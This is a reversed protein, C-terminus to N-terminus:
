WPRGKDQWPKPLDLDDAMIKYCNYGQSMGAFGAPHWATGTCYFNAIGPFKHRALEPIPRFQGLQSPVHDVVKHDGYPAMNILRKATTFPTEPAYGIVNEWTMNPAYEQWWKLENDAHVRSYEIWERESMATAPLIFTETLIVEKGPPALTPDIHSNPSALLSFEDAIPPLQGMRRGYTYKLLSDPDRNTMWLWGSRWTDANFAEATYRPREHLAYSYWSITTAGATCNKVKRRIVPSVNEEGLLKFVLQYPDVTTVVAKRAAIETGDALRVGTAKGNDIIVREVHAQTIWKGGHNGIIRQAAHALSHTGGVFGGVSGLTQPGFARYFGGLATGFWDPDVGWSLTPRLFLKMAEVSEFMELFLEQPSMVAWRPDIGSDPHAALRQLASRETPLPAPNYAHELLYTGYLERAKEHYKLFTEADAESFKAFERATKEGTPDVWMPYVVLSAHDPKFIAGITVPHSAVKAGLTEFEDFDELGPAVWYDGIYHAHPNNIFGPATTEDSAWGGGLEHRRELLCVELKAYKTLYMACSLAKNGGGVFVVDYTVDAM